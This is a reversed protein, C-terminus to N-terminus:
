RGGADVSWYTGRGSARRTVVRARQESGPLVEGVGDGGARRHADVATGAEALCKGDGGTQAFEFGVLVDV